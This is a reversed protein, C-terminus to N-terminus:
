SGLPSRDGSPEDSGSGCWTTFYFGPRSPCMWATSWRSLTLWYGSLLLCGVASAWLSHALGGPIPGSALARVAWWWLLPDIWWASQSTSPEMKWLLAQWAALRNTLVMFPLLMVLASCQSKLKDIIIRWRVILDCLHDRVLAHPQSFNLCEYLNQTRCHKALSWPKCFEM